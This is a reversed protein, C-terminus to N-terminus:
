DKIRIICINNINIRFTRYGDFRYRVDRKSYDADWLCGQVKVFTFEGTSERYNEIENILLDLQDHELSLVLTDYGYCVFVETCDSYKVQAAHSAM